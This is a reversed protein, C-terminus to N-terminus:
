LLIHDKTKGEVQRNVAKIVTGLKFQGFEDYFRNREIWSCHVLIRLGDPNWENVPTKRKLFSIGEPVDEYVYVLQEHIMDRKEKWTKGSVDLITLQNRLKGNKDETLTHAMVPQTNVNKIEM